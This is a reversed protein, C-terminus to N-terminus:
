NSETPNPVLVSQSQYVTLTTVTPPTTVTGPITQIDGNDVTYRGTWTVTATVAKPGTTTYTHGYFDPCTRAACHDTDLFPRGPGATTDTHNDGFNWQVSQVFATLTVQHGALSHTGLDVTEGTNLWLLSEVNVLERGSPPASAITPHPALQVFEDHVAVPDVTPPGAAVACDVPGDPTLTGDPKVIFTAIMTLAQGTPSVSPQGACFVRAVTCPDSSSIIRPDLTPPPGCDFSHLVVPTAPVQNASPGDHQNTLTGYWGSNTTGVSPTPPPPTATAIGGSLVLSSALFGSLAISRIKM